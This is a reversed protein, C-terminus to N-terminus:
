PRCPRTRRPVFSMGPFTSQVRRNRRHLRKSDPDDRTRRRACAHRVIRYARGADTCFVRFLKGNRRALKRLFQADTERQMLTRGDTTHAPSDNTLNSPDPKFGYNEFITNAVDGDTVDAWEHVQETTNMLWTADQGSVRLTSAVTGTDLHASQALM